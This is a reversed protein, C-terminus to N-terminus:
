AAMRVMKPIDGQNDIIRQATRQEYTVAAEVVELPTRGSDLMNQMVQSVPGVPNSEYEEFSTATAIRKLNKIRDVAFSIDAKYPKYKDAMETMFRVAEDIVEGATPDTPGNLNYAHGIEKRKSSDVLNPYKDAFYETPQQGNAVAEFAGLKLVDLFVNRAYEDLLSFSSGSETSEIRGIPKGNSTAMRLRVPGHYSPTETGDELTTRYATRDMTHTEGNVIATTIRNHLEEPTRIMDGEGTTGMTRRYLDRYDLPRKGQILPTEGLIMPSSFMLMGSIKAMNSNLTDAVAIAIETPVVYEGHENKVHPLSVSHHGAAAFWYEIDHKDKVMEEFSSYGHKGAIFDGVEAGAEDHRGMLPRVKNSIGAIYQAYEGENMQLGPDDISGVPPVGTNVALIDPNTVKLTYRARDLIGDKLTAAPPLATEYLGALLEEQEEIPAKLIRGTARDVLFSEVESGRTSAHYPLQDTRTAEAVIETAVQAAGDNGFMRLYSTEIHQDTQKDGWIVETYAGRDIYEEVIWNPHRVVGVVNGRYDRAVIGTEGVRGEAFYTEQMRTEETFRPLVPATLEEGKKDAKAAHTDRGEPEPESPQQERRHGIIQPINPALLIEDLNVFMRPMMSPAVRETSGVGSRRNIVPALATRRDLNPKRNGFEGAFAM